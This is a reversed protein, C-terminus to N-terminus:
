KEAQRRATGELYADVIKMTVAVKWGEATLQFEYGDGNAGPLHLRVRTPSITKFEAQELVAAGPYPHHMGDSIYLAASMAEPTAWQARIEPPLAPYFQMAKERAAPDFVQLKEMMEMDGRDCAWALTQMAAVPTAQGANRYAPKLLQSLKSPAREAADIPAGSSQSAEARPATTARPGSSEAQKLQAQRQQSIRLRLQGNEARLRTAELQRDQRAFFQGTSVLLGTVLITLLSLRCPSM